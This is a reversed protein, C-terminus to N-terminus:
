GRHHVSRCFHAGRELTIVGRQPTAKGGNPIKNRFYYTDKAKRVPVRPEKLICNKNDGKTALSFLAEPKVRGFVVPKM